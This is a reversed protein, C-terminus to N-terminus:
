SAQYAWASVLEDYYMRDLAPQKVGNINKVTLSQSTLTYLYYVPLDDSIIKQIEKYMAARKTDDPESAGKTFLEDIRPNSYGKRNQTGGKEKTIFQSKVGDPDPPIGGGFNALSLDYDMNNVKAVYANFEQGDVNVKIGLQKLQQQLYTAQLKRPNSSTPYVVTFEVAKGSKDKLTDGDLTYGADKLVQRAKDLSYDYKTVETNYFLKDVPNVFSDSLVGLGADTAKLLGARDISYALAQRMAKDNFPARTMNFELFRYGGNAPSWDYLNVNPNNKADAYQSPSFQPAYQNQGTKLSEYVNTPQASPLYTITDLNPRGKYYNPNAEIVIREDLKFEKLKYPGSSVTPNLIEPNNKNDYFPYKSWLSKKVPPNAGCYSLGLNKPAAVKLVCTIINGQSTFSDIKQLNDIAVYNNDPNAKDEKSAQEIPYVYDEPLIPSGDSWKVGDRLTFTYTKLDDSITLKDAAGYRWRLNVADYDLLTSTFLYNSIDTWSNTYNVNQPYPHLDPVLQKTLSVWNLNGGTKSGAPLPPYKQFPYIGAQDPKADATPAATTQVAASTAATSAAATTM